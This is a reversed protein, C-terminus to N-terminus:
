VRMEVSSSLLLPLLTESYGLSFPYISSVSDSLSFAVIFYALDLPQVVLSLATEANIVDDGAIFSRPETEM